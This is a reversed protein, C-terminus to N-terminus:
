NGVKEIESLLVDFKNKNEPPFSPNSNLPADVFAGGELMSQLDYKFMEDSCKSINRLAFEYIMEIHSAKLNPNGAIRWLVAMSGHSYKESGELFTIEDQIIQTLLETRKNSFAVSARPSRSIFWSDPNNIEEGLRCDDQVLEEILDKPLSKEAALERAVLINIAVPTESYIEKPVRPLAGLVKWLKDEPELDIDELMQWFPFEGGEKFFGLIELTLLQLIESLSQTPSDEYQDLSHEYWSDISDEDVDSVQGFALLSFVKSEPDAAPNSALFAALAPHEFKELNRLTKEDIGPNLASVLYFKKLSKNLLNLDALPNCSAAGAVLFRQDQQFQNVINADVSIFARIIDAYYSYRDDKDIRKLQEALLAQDFGDLTSRLDLSM